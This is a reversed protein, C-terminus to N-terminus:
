SPKWVKRVARPNCDDAAAGYDGGIARLRLTGDRNVREVKCHVNGYFASDFLVIDGRKIRPMQKMRRKWKRFGVRDCQSINENDM